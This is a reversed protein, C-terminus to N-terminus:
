INAAPAREELSVTRRGFFRGTVRRLLSAVTRYARWGLIATRLLRPRERGQQRRMWFNAAAGALPLAARLHRFPSLRRKLSTSYFRFNQLELRLRQRYVESEEALARKRAAFEKIEFLRAM